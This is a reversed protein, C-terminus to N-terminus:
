ALAMGQLSLPDDEAFIRLGRSLAVYLKEFAERQRSEGQEALPNPLRWQAREPQGPWDACEEQAAEDCLTIVFDLHPAQPGRFEDVSKSALGAVDHGHRALTDLALPSPAQSPAVGASYARFRGAGITNLIAEALISRASNHNCLFLVTRTAM